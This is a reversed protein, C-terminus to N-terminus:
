AKQKLSSFILDYLRVYTLLTFSFRYKSFLDLLLVNANSFGLQRWLLFKYMWTNLCELVNLKVSQTLKSM